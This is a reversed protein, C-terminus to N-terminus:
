LPTPCREEFVTALGAISQSGMFDDIAYDLAYIGDYERLPILYDADGLKARAYAIYKTDSVSHQRIIFNGCDSKHQTGTDPHTTWLPFGFGGAKNQYNRFPNNPSLQM